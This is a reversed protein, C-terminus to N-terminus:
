PKYIKMVDKITARCMPCYRGDEDHRQKQACTYCMCTHGCPYLAMEINNEYCIVCESPEENRKDVVDSAAAPSPPVTIINMKTESDERKPTPNTLLKISIPSEFFYILAWQPTKMEIKKGFKGKEEGNILYHMQGSSNIWFSLVTNRTACVKKDLPLALYGLNKILDLYTFDRIDEFSTDSPNTSTVGFCFAFAETTRNTVEMFKITIVEDIIVPRSTFVFGFPEIRRALTGDQSIKIGKSHVNHFRLDPKQM